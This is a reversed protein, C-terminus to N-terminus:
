NTAIPKKGGDRKSMVQMHKAFSLLAASWSNHYPYVVNHERCHQQVIKALEPYFLPHISPFLHHEIQYCMGGWFQALWEPQHFSASAQIQQVGWDKSPSLANVNSPETDHNPFVIAWYTSGGIIFYLALSPLWAAGHLYIPLVFHIFASPITIMLLNRWDTDELQKYIKMGFLKEFRFALLYLLGQGFWQNPFILFLPFVSWGQHPHTTPNYRSMPHKRVMKVSNGLDPDRRHVGTYCHHGLVHHQQWLIYYFFHWNGWLNTWLKNIWPRNSLAAHSATHFLGFGWSIAILGTLGGLVPSATRVWNYFLFAWTAITAWMWLWYTWTAKHHTYGKEQFYKRVKANLSNYFSADDWSFQHTKANEEMLADYGEPLPVEYKQLIAQLHKDSMSHVSEYLETCDRGRGIALMHSGGPHNKMYPELNYAKNHIIWTQEMTRTAM